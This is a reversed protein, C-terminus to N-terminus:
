IHHYVDTFMFFPFFNCKQGLSPGHFLVHCIDCEDETAHRLPSSSLSLRFSHTPLNRGLRRRCFNIIKNRPLDLQKFDPYSPDSNICVLASCLCKRILLAM